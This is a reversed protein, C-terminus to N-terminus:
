RTPRQSGRTARRQGMAQDIPSKPNMAKAVDAAQVGTMERFKTLGRARDLRNKNQQKLYARTGATGHNPDAAQEMNDIQRNMTNVENALLDAERKANTATRQAELMREAKEDRLTKLQDITPAPKPEAAPEPAVAETTEVEPAIDESSPEEPNAAADESGETSAPAGLASAVEETKEPATDRMLDPRAEVVQRRTITDDGTLAHLADMRPSGNSTWHEDNAPDLVDLAENLQM